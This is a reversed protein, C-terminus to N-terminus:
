GYAANFAPPEKGFSKRFIRQSGRRYGRCASDEGFPQLKVSQNGVM